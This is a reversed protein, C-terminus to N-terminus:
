EVPFFFVEPLRPETDTFFVEPASGRFVDIPHCAGVTYDTRVVPRRAFPRVTLADGAHPECM